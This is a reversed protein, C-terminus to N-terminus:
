SIEEDEGPVLAFHNYFNILEKEAVEESVASTSTKM